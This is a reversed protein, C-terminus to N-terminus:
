IDKVNWTETWNAALVDYTTTAEDYSWHDGKLVNGNIICLSSTPSDWRVCSGSGSIVCGTIHNNVVVMRTVTGSIALGKWGFNYVYNGDVRIDTLTGAFRMGIEDNNAGGSCRLHNDAIVARLNSSQLLIGTYDTYVFNGVFAFDEAYESLLGYSAGELANRITNGTILLGTQPTGSVGSIRIGINCDEVTNGVVTVAKCTVKGSRVKISIGCHGTSPSNRVTNGIVTVHTAGNQVEIGCPSDYSKGVGSDSIINDSVVVYDCGWNVLIGEEGANDIRNGTIVIDNCYEVEIANVWGNDVRINEIRVGDASNFGVSCLFNAGTGRSDKDGDVYLDRVSIGVNHTAADFGPTANANTIVRKDGQASDLTIQTAPGVGALTTYDDIEIPNTLAFHGATLQVTGGGATAVAALAANIESQDATGDCRYDAAARIEDPADSAAVTVVVSGGASGGGGGGSRLAVAVTADAEAAAIVCHGVFVNGSAVATAQQSVSDWYVMAGLTIAEVGKAIDFVGRVALEGQAHAAINQIAIGVINDLVVVDGSVVASGPTYDIVDGDHIFTAKAM